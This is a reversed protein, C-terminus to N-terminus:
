SFSKAGSLNVGIAAMVAIQIGTLVIVIMVVVVVSLHYNNPNSSVLEINVELGLDHIWIKNPLSPLVFHFFCPFDRYSFSKLVTYACAMCGISTVM